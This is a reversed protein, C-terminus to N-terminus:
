KPTINGVDLGLRSSTILGGAGAAPQLLGQDVWEGVREIALLPNGRTREALHEVVRPELPLLGEILERHSADDLPGLPLHTTGPHNLLAEHMPGEGLWKPSSGETFTALILVPTAQPSALIHRMFSLANADDQGDDLWVVIPRLAGLRAIFRRLLEPQESSRPSAGADADDPKPRLMRTMARVMLEDAVGHWTLRHRVQARSEDEDLGSTVFWRELMRTLGDSRGDSFDAKLITAAGLEHARQAMWAALRSRGVGPPGSLVVLRPRGSDRVEELARWMRDRAEDRDVFPVARVRYLGLGAGVLRIPPKAPRPHRWSAPMPPPRDAPAPRGSAAEGLASLTTGSTARIARVTTGGGELDDFTDPTGIEALAFAADAARQFRASPDDELMRDLWAAFGFPLPFIPDLRARRGLLRAEFTESPRGEAYASRNTALRQAILGVSFLDTWPGYDRWRSRLQEPAMYALTGVVADEAELDLRQEMPVAIGFDALKLGPRLDEQRAILINRPTIDRHVVGRAHAHALADLLAILIARLDEYRKLPRMRELTGGSALEMVLYPSNRVFGSDGPEEIRGQDLLMVINPHDLAAVARVENELAGSVRPRRAEPSTIVKVAVAVGTPRHVARWVEGNAGRGLRVELQFTGLVLGTPDDPNAAM